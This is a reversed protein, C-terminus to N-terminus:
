HLEGGLRTGQGDGAVFVDCPLNVVRGGSRLPVPEHVGARSDGRPTFFESDIDQELRQVAREDAGDVRGLVRQGKQVCHTRWAQPDYEVGEVHM